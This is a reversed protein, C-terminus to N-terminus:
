GGRGTPRMRRTPRGSWGCSRACGGSLRWCVGARDRPVPRPRSRRHEDLQRKAERLWGERGQVRAVITEHDFELVLGACGDGDESGDVQSDRNANTQERQQRLREKAAKLATKRGAATRLEEPLEDSRRDGYREDEESDIREAEALIELVIQQYDRNGMNSANAAVKTGDVALLGV